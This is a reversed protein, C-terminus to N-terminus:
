LLFDPKRKEIALEDLVAQPNPVQARHFQMQALGSLREEGMNNLLCTKLRKLCSFSREAFAITFPLTALILLLTHNSPYFEKQAEREHNWDCKRSKQKM